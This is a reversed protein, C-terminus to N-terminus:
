FIKIRRGGATTVHNKSQLHNAVIGAGFNKEFMETFMPLISLNRAKTPVPIYKQRKGHEKLCEALQNRIDPDIVRPFRVQAATPIQNESFKHDETSIEPSVKIYYM